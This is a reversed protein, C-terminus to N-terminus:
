RVETIVKQDPKEEERMACATLGGGCFIIRNRIGWEDLM